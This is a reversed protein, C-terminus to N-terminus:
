NDKLWNILANALVEKNGKAEVGTKSLLEVLQKRTYTETLYEVPNKSELLKVYFENVEKDLSEDPVLTTMIFPVIPAEIKDLILINKSEQVFPEVYEKTEVTANLHVTKGTPIYAYGNGKVIDFYGDLEIERSVLAKSELKSWESSLLCPVAVNELAPISVIKQCILIQTTNKRKNTVIGM